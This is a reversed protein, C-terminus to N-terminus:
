SKCVKFIGSHEGEGSIILRTTGNILTIIVYYEKEPVLVEQDELTIAVTFKGQTPNYIWGNIDDQTETIKKKIIPDVTFYPYKKIEFEVTYGSIDLPTYIKNDRSQITFGFSRSEGSKIKMVLRKHVCTM